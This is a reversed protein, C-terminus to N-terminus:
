RMAVSYQALAKVINDDPTGLRFQNKFKGCESLAVSKLEEPLSNIYNALKQVNESDMFSNTEVFDDGVQQLLQQTYKKIAEPSQESVIETKAKDSDFWGAHASQPAAGMLGLGLGATALARGIKGETLTDGYILKHAEIVSEALITDKGAITKVFTYFKESNM